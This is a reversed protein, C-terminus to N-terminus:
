GEKTALKARLRDRAKVLRSVDDGGNVYEKVKKALDLDGIEKVLTAIEERIAKSDGPARAKVAAFYDEFCLPLKEPLDHRNKADYAAHHSTYVIRAGTGIGKIQKGDKYTTDDYNAFLADQCWEKVLGAASARKSDQLKLGYRDYNSGMPNPYNTLIAHAVLIVHTGRASQLGEIEALLRRWEGLAVVYGKGYDYDEIHSKGDRRCIFGWLLGEAWDLSDIVVTQFEHAGSRLDALAEFVDPWTQAEPYRACDVMETGKEASIFIPAPAGAAWTTKGIGETGYILTRLPSEIVGRTVNALRMRGNSPTM